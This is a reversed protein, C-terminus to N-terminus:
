ALRRRGAAFLVVVIGWAILVSMNRRTLEVLASVVAEARGDDARHRQRGRGSGARVGQICISWFSELNLAYVVTPILMFAIAGAVSSAASGLGGFISTGGLVVAVISALIYEDGIRPSGSATQATLWSRPPPPSCAAGCTPRSRAAAPRLRRHALRPARRQRDGDPRHLVDHPAALGLRRLSAAHRDGIQPRRPHRRLAGRDAGARARRGRDASRRVRPRRPHDMHGPTVLFPELRLYGILAGNVFGVLAGLALVAAVDVLVFPGAFTLHTCLLASCLSMLGGLSLDIGRTVIVFTQGYAALALPLMLSLRGDLVDKSAILAPQIALITIVFAAIYLYPMLLPLSRLRGGLSPRARATRATDAVATMVRDGRSRRREQRGHRPRNGGRRPRRGVARSRHSGRAARRRSRQRRRARRRRQLLLPRRRGQRMARADAPLDRDQHRCRRRADPRVHSPHRPGAGALPGLLVKQQNGGSLARVEQYPSRFKVEFLKVMREALRRSAGGILFGGRAVQSLNGLVINDKISLTQFLGETARDEPIYAVGARLAAAPSRLSVARGDMTVTGTMPRAGFLAMFLDKQGQGQLGAVGLIQGPYLDLSIDRLRRGAALGRVECKAVPNTALAPKPPFSSDIRRGLMLEILDDHKFSSALGTGVDRGERFVTLRQSFATVEQMRHSVFIVAGGDEAFSVAQGRLWEVQRPHLASTAEDLVLLTPRRLVVKAIELTQRDSLSLQRM